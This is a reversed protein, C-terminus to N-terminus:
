NKLILWPLELECSVEETRIGAPAMQVGRDLVFFIFFIEFGRVELFIELFLFGFVRLLRFFFWSFFLFLILVKFLIHDLQLQVNSFASRVRRRAPAHDLNQSAISNLEDSVGDIKARKLAAVAATRRSFTPRKPTLRRRLLFPAPINRRFRTNEPPPRPLFTSALALDMSPLKISFTPLLLVINSSYLYNIAYWFRPTRNFQFFKILGIGIQLSNFHIAGDM